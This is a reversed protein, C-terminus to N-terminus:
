ARINVFIKVDRFHRFFFIIGDKDFFKFLIFLFYLFPRFYMRSKQEFSYIQWAVQFENLFWKKQKQSNRLRFQGFRYKYSVHWFICQLCQRSLPHCMLTCWKLKPTCVYSKLVQMWTPVCLFAINWQTLATKMHFYQM